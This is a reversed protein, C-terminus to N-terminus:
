RNEEILRQFTEGPLPTTVSVSYSFDGDTWVALSFASEEGKLTVTLGQLELTEERAYVTYDGSNDETGRSKRYRLSETEGSYQIEALEGWYSVYERQRVAFPLGALEKLPIGTERALAELSDVTELQPGALVGQEPQRPKWAFWCCLVVALCAAISVAQRLIVPRGKKVQPTELKQLVRQRMEPTLVVRDMAEKYKM